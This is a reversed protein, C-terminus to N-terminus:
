GAGVVDRAGTGRMVDSEEGAAVDRVEGLFYKAVVVDKARAGNVM